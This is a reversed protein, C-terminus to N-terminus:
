DLANLYALDDKVLQKEVIIKNCYSTMADEDDTM